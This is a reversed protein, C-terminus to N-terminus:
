YQFGVFFYHGPHLSYTTVGTGAMKAALHRTFLVNSLKSRAYSKVRGENVDLKEFDLHGFIYADSSVNIVRSPACKRLKDLLLNTLLFHGLHNVGFVLEHGEETRLSGDNIVGVFLFFFIYKILLINENYVSARNKCTILVNNAIFATQISSLMKKKYWPSIKKKKKKKPPPDYKNNFRVILFFYNANNFAPEIVNFLALM